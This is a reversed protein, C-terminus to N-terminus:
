WSRGPAPLAWVDGRVQVAPEGVSPAKAPVWAEAVKTM